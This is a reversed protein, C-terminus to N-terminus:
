FSQDLVLMASPTGLVKHGQPDISLPQFYAILSEVGPGLEPVVVSLTVSGPPPVTGLTFVITPTVVQVGGFKERYTFEPAFGILLAVNHGSADQVTIDATQGERVVRSTVVTAPTGPLVAPAEASPFHDLLKGPAANASCGHVGAGGASLAGTVDVAKVASGNVVLVGAGGAGPLLCGGAFVGDGGKGGTLVTRSLLKVASTGDLTMVGPSGPTGDLPEPFPGPGYLGADVGRGGTFESGFIALRGASVVAGPKGDTPYGDPGPAESGEVGHFTCRSIATRGANGLTAGAAGSSPVNCEEIFVFSNGADSGIVGLPIGGGSPTTLSLGRVLAAGGGNAGVMLANGGFVGTGPNIFQVDAGADAVFSLTLVSTVSQYTGSRLLFVDGNVAANNVLAENISTFDAGPGNAPDIVIVKAAAPPVAILAALLLLATRM